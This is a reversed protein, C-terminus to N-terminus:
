NLEAGQKLHRVFYLLISRVMKRCSMVQFLRLHNCESESQMLGAVLTRVGIWDDVLM